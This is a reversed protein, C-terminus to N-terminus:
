FFQWAGNLSQYLNDKREAFDAETGYFRHDSHAPLMNVRFVEPDDLWSLQPTIVSM